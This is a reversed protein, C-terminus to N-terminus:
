QEIKECSVKYSTFRKLTIPQQQQETQRDTQRRVPLLQWSPDKASSATPHSAFISGASLAATSPACCFCTQHLSRQCYSPPACCARSCSTGPAMLFLCSTSGRDTCPARRSDGWLWM